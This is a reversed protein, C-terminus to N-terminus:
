KIAEQDNDNEQTKTMTIYNRITKHKTLDQKRSVSIYKSDLLSLKSDLLPSKKCFPWLYAFIYLKGLDRVSTM